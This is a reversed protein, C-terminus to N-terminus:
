IDTRYQGAYPMRMVHPCGVSSFGRIHEVLTCAVSMRSAGQAHATRGTCGRTPRGAGCAVASRPQQGIPGFPFHQALWACRTPFFPQGYATGFYFPCRRLGYICM